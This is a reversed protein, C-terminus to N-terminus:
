NALNALILEGTRKLDNSNGFRASDSDMAKIAAARKNIARALEHTLVEYEAHLEIAQERLPYYVDAAESLSSFENRFLGAAQVLEIHSLLLDIKPTIVQQSIQDLPLRSYILSQPNSRLLDDTLSRFAQAPVATKCRALLENRLQPGF